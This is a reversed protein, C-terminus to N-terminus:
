EPLRKIHNADGADLFVAWEQTRNDWLGADVRQQIHSSFTWGKWERFWYAGVTWNFLIDAPVGIALWVKGVTRIGSPIEVGKAQIAKLTCLALFATYIIFTAGVISLAAYLSFKLM